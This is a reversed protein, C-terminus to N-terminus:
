KDATKKKIKVFRLAEVDKVPVPTEPPYPNYIGMPVCDNTPDRAMTNGNVIVYPNTCEFLSVYTSLELSFRASAVSFIDGMTLSEVKVKVDESNSLFSGEGSAFIVGGGISFGKYKGMANGLQKKDLHYIKFRDFYSGRVFISLFLGGEFRPEAYFVPVLYRLGLSSASCSLYTRYFDGQSIALFTFKLDGRTILHCEEYPLLGPNANAWDSGVLPKYGAFSVQCLLVYFILFTSKLMRM